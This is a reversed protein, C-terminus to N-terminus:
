WYLCINIGPSDLLNSSSMNLTGTESQDDSFYNTLHEMYIANVNCCLKHPSQFNTDMHIAFHKQSSSDPLELFELTDTDKEGWTYQPCKILKCRCLSTSISFNCSSQDSTNMQNNQEWCLCMQVYRSQGVLKFIAYTNWDTLTWSFFFNEFGFTVYM